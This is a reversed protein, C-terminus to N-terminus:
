KLGLKKRIVYCDFQNGSCDLETLATNKSVDLSTLLNDACNLERLATNMSVDLSTLQRGGRCYLKRLATNNSVDLSTLLNGSCDLYTLANNNSVDLSTLQSGVFFLGTVATFAELGTLNSIISDVFSINGNFVRAETFQIEKDGNTNIVENGVLYAKFNVDPINVIQTFGIIPLALFLFLINKM